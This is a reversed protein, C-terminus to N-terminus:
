NKIIKIPKEGDIILIHVGASFYSLDITYDLLEGDALIRGTNDFISFHSGILDKSPRITIKSNTPNPAFTTEEYLETEFFGSVYPVTESSCNIYARVEYKAGPRLESLSIHTLATEATLWVNSGSISYDIIYPLGGINDNWSLDATTPTTGNVSLDFPAYCTTRFTTSTFDKAAICQPAVAVTYPTGANLGDLVFFTSSTQVTTVTGGAALSYTLTYSDTHSEDTWNIRASFPTVNDIYLTSIDPCPTIFSIKIFDSNIDTCVMSGRVFYEQGPVLPSMTRTEDIITWTVNDPSYELIVNGTYNSNWSVVAKNYILETITLASLHPCLTTFQKHRFETPTYCWRGRYRLDYTTGPLLDTIQNSYIPVMTWQDKGAISYEMEYSGLDYTYLTVNDVGINTISLSNTDVCDTTFDIYYYDTFGLYCKARVRVRYPYGSSLDSLTTSYATWWYSTGSPAYEIEFQDLTTNPPLVITASFKSVEVKILSPDLCDSGGSNQWIEMQYGDHPGYYYSYTNVVDPRGDGNLDNITMQPEVMGTEGSPLTLGFKGFQEFSLNSLQEGANGKNKLFLFERRDTGVVLDVKGDGNIDGAQVAPHEYDTLTVVPTALTINPSTRKNEFLALNGPEYPSQSIIDKWGDKNLDNAGYQAFRGRTMDQVITEDFDFAGPHSKNTLVALYNTGYSGILLDSAGDNNVDSTTLFYVNYPINMVEYLKFNNASLTGKPNQNRIINLQVNEFSLSTTGAIDIHGDLDFDKFVVYQLTATVPLDVPAGFFIYGPVSFNPYIRYGNQFYGVIDKLGNGDFDVLSLTGPNVDSNFTSRFFSEETIDGGQNVNMFVSFGLYHRAVIDPKNDGDMDQVLTQYIPDTSGVRLQMSSQNFEGTFTPVFEQVSEATLGSESDFVSITGFSAGAPVKVKIETTSSSLVTARTAGFSVLNKEDASNFNQGIITVVTGIPATAPSYSSIVPKVATFFSVAETASSAFGNAAVLKYYYTQRPQLNLVPASVNLYETANSLPFTSTVLGLAPTTGYEFYFSTPLSNPNVQGYLTATTETVDVTHVIKVLPALSLTIFETNSYTSGNVNTAVLRLYYKTESQLGTLIGEVKDTYQYVSTSMGFAPTTGYEFHYTANDARPL